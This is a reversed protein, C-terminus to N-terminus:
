EWEVPRDIKRGHNLIVPNSLVCRELISTDLITSSTAAKQLAGSQTVDPSVHHVPLNLENVVMEITDALDTDNSVVVFEDYRHKCADRVLHAALNVDSKKEEFHWFQLKEGSGDSALTGRHSVWRFSGPVVVLRGLSELARLYRRQRQISGPDIASAKQRLYATFYGVYTVDQDPVLADALAELNLWKYNAPVKQERWKNQFLGYYLNFGDIYVAVSM